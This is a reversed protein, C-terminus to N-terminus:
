PRGGELVCDIFPGLAMGLVILGIGLAAWNPRTAPARYWGWLLLASMCVALALAAGGDSFWPTLDRWFKWIATAPPMLALATAAAVLAAGFWVFLPIREETIATMTVGWVFRQGCPAVNM